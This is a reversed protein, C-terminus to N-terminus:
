GIILLVVSLSGFIRSRDAHTVQERSIECHLARNDARSSANSRSVPSTTVIFGAVHTM